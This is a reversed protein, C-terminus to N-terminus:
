LGLADELRDGEPSYVWREGGPHYHNGWQFSLKGGCDPHAMAPVAAGLSMPVPIVEPSGCDLCRGPNRRQARWRLLQELEQSHRTVFSAECGLRTLRSISATYRASLEDCSPLEEAQTMRRCHRCWAQVVPAPVYIGEALRYLIGIGPLGRWPAFEQRFSCGSCAVNLTNPM